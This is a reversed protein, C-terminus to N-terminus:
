RMTSITKKITKQNDKEKEKAQSQRKILGGAAYPDVAQRRAAAATRPEEDAKTHGEVGTMGVKGRQLEKQRGISQDGPGQVAELLKSLRSEIGEFWADGISKNTSNPIRPGAQHGYAPPLVEDIALEGGVKDDDPNPKPIRKKKSKKDTRMSRAVENVLEEFEEFIM